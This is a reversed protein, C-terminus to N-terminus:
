VAGFNTVTLFIENAKQYKSEFIDKAQEHALVFVFMFVFYKAQGQYYGHLILWASVMCIDCMHDLCVLVILLM